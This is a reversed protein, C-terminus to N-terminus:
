SDIEGGSSDRIINIEAITEGHNWPAPGDDEDGDRELAAILQQKYHHEKQNRM